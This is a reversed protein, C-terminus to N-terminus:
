RTVLTEGVLGRAVRELRADASALVASYEIAAAIYLCDYVPHRLRLALDLARATLLDSRVLQPRDTEWLARIEHANEASCEDRQVKKWLINAFECELLDPAILRRRGEIGDALLAAAAPHGSEPFYWKAAVSADVVTTLLALVSM